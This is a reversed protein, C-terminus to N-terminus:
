IYRKNNESDKILVCPNNDKNQVTGILTFYEKDLENYIEEPVCILLEFDEGGWKAFHKYELNNQKCFEKVKPNVPVSNMDIKITHMSEKSIKYLADVLGDSCDMITIDKDIIKALKQAEKIRPTPNIHHEILENDAYLFNSLAHFGVSSSGLEGTVLVYDDKKANRRSSLYKTERKGIACVSIVIKESGTIDGGIVKIGYENCIDNIGKYLDEIFSNKTIKPMSLSVTVYKPEALATALDSLNVSIAKRGLNYANTTYLTFHVDEVLTDHTIYIGLDQLYACDDGLYSNDDLTNNIIKLFELEKM